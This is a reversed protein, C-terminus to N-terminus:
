AVTEPDPGAACVREKRVNWSEKSDARLFGYVLLTTCLNCPKRQELFRFICIFTGKLEQADVEEEVTKTTALCGELESIAVDYISNRKQATNARYRKISLNRVIRCVYALLPNPHTPPVTNWVGLYADNVCEEADQLSQLINVSLNRCIRGYKHHLEKIAMESRNFFLQIIREDEM